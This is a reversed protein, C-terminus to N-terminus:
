GLRRELEDPPLSHAAQRFVNTGLAIDYLARREANLPILWATYALKAVIFYGLYRLWALGFGLPRGDRRLVRLGLSLKGLTAGLMGHFVTFYAMCIFVNLWGSFLLPRQLDYFIAMTSDSPMGGELLENMLRNLADMAQEQSPGSFGIIQLAIQHAIFLIIADIAFAGLRPWFGAPLFLVSQLRVQGAAGIQRRSEELKRDYAENIAAAWPM